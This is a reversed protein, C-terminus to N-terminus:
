DGTAAALRFGVLRSDTVVIAQNSQTHFRVSRTPGDSNVREVFEGTEPDCLVIAARDAASLSYAVVWPGMRAVQWDGHPGVYQEWLLRGDDLARCHLVGAAAVFLREGEQCAARRPDALRDVGVCCSWIKKGSDPAFRAFTGIDIAAVLASDGSSQASLTSRIAFPTDGFYEVTGQAVNLVQPVGVSDVFGLMRDPAISVPDDVWPRAPGPGEATLAGDLPNLVDWRDPALRQVVIRESSCHWCSQLRGHPPDYRWAVEGTEPFLAWLGSAASLCCFLDGAARFSIDAPASLGAEAVFSRHWLIRGDEPAIGFATNSIGLVLVDAVFRVWRPRDPLVIQWRENGDIANLCKLSTGAVLVCSLENSPAEGEPVLVVTGSRLSRNWRRLLPADARNPSGSIGEMRRIQELREPVIENVPRSVGDIAVKATAHGDYLQQWWRGASQWGRRSEANRALGALLAPRVVSSAAALRAKYTRDAGYSDGASQQRSALQLAAREAAAANPYRALLAATERADRKRLAEDLAPEALPEVLMYVQRGHRAILRDIEARAFVAASQVPILDRIRAISSADLVKQWAAVAEEPAGREEYAQALARWGAVKREPTDAIEAAETLRSIAESQKKAALAEAGLRLLLMSLRQSALTKLPLGDRLDAPRSLDRAKRYADRALDHEHLAEALLALEFQPHPDDPRQAIQDERQKRLSGFESFVVIRDSQGLLLFGETLTVNGGGGLGHQEHFDIERDIRGTAADVLLLEERRPWYVLGGGIACRGRTAAEPAAQGINWVTRGELTDLAWLQDGAAVLKGDIVGALQHVNGKLERDWQLLGTEAEYAFVRDSDFPAVFVQGDHYVCPNPGHTQRRNFASASEIDARPYTTVWRPSGDRIDLAAVAGLNTGYYLREDAVTLLQHHIEVVDPGFHEIGLCVKRNWILRATAGDFCAVNLQLQPERRRLAVYVRGSVALPAGDFSWAGGEDRFEEPRITWVLDGERRLDLCVLMGASDPVLRNRGRSAGGGLHAFLRGGDISMTFRPLGLRRSIPDKPVMMEAPLRYIAADKGWAPPGEEASLLKRAYIATEDCYLVMNDFVLPYYCLVDPSLAAPGRNPVVFLPLRDEEIRMPQETKRVALPASWYVSGVDVSEMQVQNRRASGAFTRVDADDTPFSEMASLAASSALIEALNGSKGAITGQAQPHLRRFEALERQGRQLQGQMLSCLVLRARVQAADFNSSPYRLVAPLEGAGSVQELPLLKEWYSRAQPLNGREWAIQGLLMLADDGYSSLFARSLIKQLGQEDHGDRAGELWRRAQADTRARYLHLGAEPLSSLLIDCYTAVSVYRRPSIAVMRDGLQEAIQRVLEIGDGWQRAALLDRAAGLKKAAGADVDLFVTEVGAPGEDPQAHGVQALTACLAVVWLWKASRPAAMLLWRSDAMGCITARPDRCVRHPTCGNRLDSMIRAM